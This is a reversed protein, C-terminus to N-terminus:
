HKYARTLHMNDILRIEDVYAAVLIRAEDVIEDVARLNDTDVVAVYDVKLKGQNELVERMPEIIKSAKKEGEEVLKLSLQLSKYINLARMRQEDNLRLNRSSMALGDSERMLPAPVINVPFHLDKVMQQIVKLQQFDKEGFIAVDPSVLNFLISVISVVGDFHGKRYEGEWLDALEGAKVTCRRVSSEKGLMRDLTKGCSFIERANPVFCLNVGVSEAKDLDQGITRPYNLLDEKSNFQLENVFISMVVYDSNKRAIDVLSLHGGHLAGMTPVFSVVKGESKRGLIEERLTGINEAVKM